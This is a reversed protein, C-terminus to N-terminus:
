SELGTVVGATAQTESTAVLERSEPGPGTLLRGTNLRPSSSGAGAMAPANDILTPTRTSTRTVIHLAASRLLTRTCTPHCLDVATCSGSGLGRSGVNEEAGGDISSPRGSVAATWRRLRKLCKSSTRCAMRSLLSADPTCRCVPVQVRPLAKCLPHVADLIPSPRLVVLPHACWPTPLFLDVNTRPRM